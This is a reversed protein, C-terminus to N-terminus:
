AAAEAAAREPTQFQFSPETFVPARFVPVAPKRGGRSEEGREEGKAGGKASQRSQIQPETFTARSRAPKRRARRRM